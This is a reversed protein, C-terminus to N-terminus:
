VIAEKLGQNNLKDLAIFMLARSKGFAPPSEILLYQKGLKAYAREQMARMGLANARSSTSTRACSISVSPITQTM